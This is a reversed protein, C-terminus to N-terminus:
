DRGFIDRTYVKYKVDSLKEDYRNVLIIDSERKFVQSDTEIKCNEISIETINPEYIIIEREKALIKIIDYIASSRCNDSNSKMLLRYIGVKDTSLTKELITKAVFEKRIMNSEVISDILSNPVGSYNAKLQKTDKPFCYGGYGFSPNNYFDGIRSDACMGKIIDKTNLNHKIAYDDVENFYAVRMALYTNSFLKVSEAEEINMILTLIDQKLAGEKLLNAFDCAKVYEEKNNIDYGVIIRSPYLNDELARGERLFEPSFLITLNQFKKEVKKTYGIPITSKIVIVGKVANESLKELIEDVSSTDFYNKDEDFNTPTAIIIYDANKVDEKSELQKVCFNLNEKELYETIKNDKIPSIKKNLLNVKDSNIEIGTVNNKQALLLANSLGVYGLGFVIIKKDM